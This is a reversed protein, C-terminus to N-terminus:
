NRYGQIFFAWLIWVIALVLALMGIIWGATALGRRSSDLSRHSYAMGIAAWILGFFGNLFTLPIALLSFIFGAVALNKNDVGKVMIPGNMGPQAYGNQGSMTQGQPAYGNQGMMAQGQPAYGNQGMMAQGQPAYGNQGSMVQGQPAYGNQGMMAQGQPQQYYPNQMYPQDSPLPQYLVQILNEIDNRFANKPVSGYFGTLDNEKKCYIGAFLATRTWAELHIVGNMYYYKFFRPMSLMGIGDQWIQEGDLNNPEFKQKKLFDQMIFEVFEQPKNIYEERIYRAM